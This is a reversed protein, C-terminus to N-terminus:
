PGLTTVTPKFSPWPSPWGLPTQRRQQSHPLHRGPLFPRLTPCSNHPRGEGTGTVAIGREGGRWCSTPIAPCGPAEVSTMSRRSARCAGPLDGLTALHRHRVGDSGQSLM